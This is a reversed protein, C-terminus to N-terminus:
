YAATTIDRPTPNIISDSSNQTYFIYEVGDGDHGNKGYHSWIM